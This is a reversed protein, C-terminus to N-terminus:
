LDHSVGEKRAHEVLAERARKLRSRVTNLPIGLAAAIEKYDLGELERLVICSRLEVSLLALFRDLRAREDREQAPTAPREDPIDAAVGDDFPVFRRRKRASARYANLAANVTVRYLWTKFSSRFDFRQLHRHVKIFVDQTVEEADAADRTIGLAVTYVFGSAARYVEAFAEGDGGSARTLIERPIDHM